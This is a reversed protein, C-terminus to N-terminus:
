RASTTPLTFFFTSGRGVKSEVGTEGGLRTVIRRVISLGLGHGQSSSKPHLRTFATFLQSQEEATLGSGNDRVFFRVYGNKGGESGLELRPPRGGYKLGNSLLNAWVEELWPAYGVATPWDLPLIIEAELEDIMNTLREQAALVTEHMSIPTLLVEQQRVSALLLLEDIISVLNQSGKLSIQLVKQMKKDLLPGAMQQLLELGGIINGLPTKLDHAATQAFTNLEAIREEMELQLGRLTLHTNVRAWVEEVQIPKTIYDVGGAEFGRLKDEVATLATMFIVPIDATREDAKLRRCTEFGDIGPMQVDLLILDPRAYIARELGKEGNRATIIELAQTKLYEIAVKLNTVNDDVILIVKRETKPQM